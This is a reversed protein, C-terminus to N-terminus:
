HEDGERRGSRPSGEGDRTRSRLVRGDRADVKLKVLSGGALLKRIEYVWLGHQRDLEVEIVPGPYDREVRELITRLPLVEGAELAQRARDHDGEGAFVVVACGSLVAAILWRAPRAPHRRGPPSGSPSRSPPAM